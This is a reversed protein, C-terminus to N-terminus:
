YCKLSKKRIKNTGLVLRGVTERGDEENEM